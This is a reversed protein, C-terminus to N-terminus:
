QSREIWRRLCTAVFWSGLLVSWTVFMSLRPYGASEMFGYTLSFGATVAAAMGMNELAWKRVYEDIRQFHRIIAWIMLLAPISPSAIILNRLTSVPMPEAIFNSAYLALIYILLAGFLERYYLSIAQKERM